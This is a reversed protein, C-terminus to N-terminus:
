NESCKDYVYGLYPETEGRKYLTGDKSYFYPNNPHVEIFPVDAPNNCPFEYYFERDIIKISSPFKIYELHNFANYEIEDIGEPLIIEDLCNGSFAGWCIKKLNDNWEIEEISSLEFCNEEVFQLLIPIKLKNIDTLAFARIGIKSVGNPLNLEKLDCCNRFAANGIIKLNISFKVSQVSEENFFAFNGIIEVSDDIVINIPNELHILTKKDLSYINTWNPSISYVYSYEKNAIMKSFPHLKNDDWESITILYHVYDEADDISFDTIDLTSIHSNYLLTEFNKLESFQLTGVLVLQEVDQNERFWTSYDSPLKLTKQIM